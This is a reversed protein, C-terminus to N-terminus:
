DEISLEGDKERLVVDRLGNLLATLNAQYVGSTSAANLENLFFGQDTEVVDVVFAIDPQWRNRAMARAIALASEPPALLENAAALNQANEVGRVAAINKAGNKGNGEIPDANRGSWGYPTHAIVQRDAIWFRWEVPKLVKASSIMVMMDDTLRAHAVGLSGSFARWDPAAITNGVFPKLGSDPRFFLRDEGFLATPTGPLTEILGYPVFISDRNLVPIRREIRPMWHSVDYKRLDFYLGPVAQSWGVCKARLWRADNLTTIALAGYEAAWCKPPALQQSPPGEIFQVVDGHKKLIELVERERDEIVRKHIRWFM